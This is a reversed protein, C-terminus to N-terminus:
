NSCEKFSKNSKLVCFLHYIALQSYLIHSLVKRSSSVIPNVWIVLGEFVSCFKEVIENTLSIDDLRAALNLRTIVPLGLLNTKLGNVVYVTQKSAKKGHSLNGLFQGRM